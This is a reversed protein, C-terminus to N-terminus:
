RALRASVREHVAVLAELLPILNGRDLDFPGRFLLLWHQVLELTLGRGDTALWERLEPDILGRAFDEDDTQIRFERDFAPSDLERDRRRLAGLARDGATVPAIIVHPVDRALEALACAYRSTEPEATPADQLTQVANALLQEKTWPTAVCTFAKVDLGRWKGSVIDGVARSGHEPFVALPLKSLGFTDTASYALGLDQVTKVLEKQSKRWALNAFTGGIVPISAWVGIGIYSVVPHGTMAGYVILGLGVPVASMGLSVTGYIAVLKLRGIPM